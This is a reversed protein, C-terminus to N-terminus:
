RSISFTVYSVFQSFHAHTSIFASLTNLFVISVTSKHNLIFWSSPWDTDYKYALLEHSKLLM